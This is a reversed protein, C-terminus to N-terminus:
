LNTLSYDTKIRQQRVMGRGGWTKSPNPSKSIGAMVGWLVPPLVAPLVAPVMPVGMVVPMAAAGGAVWGGLLVTAPSRSKASSLRIPPLSWIKKDTTRDNPNIILLYLIVLNYNKSCSREKKKWVKSHLFLLNMNLSIFYRLQKSM